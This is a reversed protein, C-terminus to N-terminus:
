GLLRQTKDAMRLISLNNGIVSSLKGLRVWAVELSEEIPKLAAKPDAVFHFRIDYHLHEPFMSRAPIPHIDIDFPSPPVKTLVLGTEEEGEKLSVRLIDEDGDAHGGPQLWRLLKAHHTLLVQSHSSDTIWASGTMHGPLHDRFYARPHQLLDLFQGIFTMEEPYPSEYKLLQKILQERHM